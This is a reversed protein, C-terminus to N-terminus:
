AYLVHWARVVMAQEPLPLSCIKTFHADCEGDEATSVGADDGGEEGDKSDSHPVAPKQARIMVILFWDNIIVMGTLTSVSDTQYEHFPFKGSNSRGSTNEGNSGNIKKWLEDKSEVLSVFPNHAPSPSSFPNVKPSQRPSPVTLPKILGNFLNSDAVLPPPLSTNSVAATSSSLLTTTASSTNSSFTTSESFLFPNKGNNNSSLM